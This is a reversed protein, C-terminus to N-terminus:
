FYFSLQCVVVIVYVFQGYVVFSVCGSFHCHYFVFTFFNENSFRRKQCLFNFVKIYIQGKKPLFSISM